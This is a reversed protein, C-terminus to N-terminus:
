HLLVLALALTFMFVAMLVKTWVVSRKSLKLFTELHIGGAFLIVVAVLPLIFMINYLVLYRLGAGRTAEGQVMVMITPFYIQGTCVVELVSVVLGAVFSGTFWWTTAVRTRLIRHILHRSRDPLRLAVDAARGTRAFVRADRLSVLGLVCLLVILGWYFLDALAAFGRLAYLGGFVGCGILFYATFVGASFTLGAALLAPRTFRRSALVSVLFVVTAFACPNVGDALGALAVLLPNVHAFEATRAPGAEVPPAPPDAVQELAKALIDPLSHELDALIEHHGLFARGGVYVSMPHSRTVEYEAEIAMLRRYNDLDTIPLREITLANTYTIAVDDIVARVDECSQCGESYFWLLPPPAPRAPLVLALWLLATVTLRTASM